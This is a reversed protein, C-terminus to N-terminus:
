TNVLIGFLAFVSIFASLFCNLPHVLLFAAVALAFFVFAFCWPSTEEPSNM